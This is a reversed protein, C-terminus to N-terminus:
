KKYAILDAENVAKKGLRDENVVNILEKFANLIRKPTHFFGGKIEADGMNSMSKSGNYTLRSMFGNLSDCGIFVDIDPGVKPKMNGIEQWVKAMKAKSILINKANFTEKALEDEFKVMNIGFSQKNQSQSIQM